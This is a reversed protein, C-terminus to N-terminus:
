LTLKVITTRGQLVEKMRSVVLLSPHGQRRQHWMRSVEADLMFADVDRGMIGYVEGLQSGVAPLIYSGTARAADVAMELLKSAEEYKGRVMLADAKHKLLLLYRGQTDGDLQGFTRWHIAPISALGKDILQEAEEDRGQCFLSDIMWSDGEIGGMVKQARAALAHFQPLNDESKVVRVVTLCRTLQDLLQMHLSSFFLSM